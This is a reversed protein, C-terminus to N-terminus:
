ASSNPQVHKKNTVITSALQDGWRQNRKSTRIFIAAPLGGFLFVNVELLRTLARILAARPTCKTGDVQQVRLSFLLKGPTTSFACEFLFFYAFHIGFVCFGLIAVFLNNTPLKVNENLVVAVVFTMLWSFINDIILAWYRELRKFGIRGLDKHQEKKHAAERIAM